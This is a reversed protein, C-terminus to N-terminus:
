LEIEFYDHVAGGGGFESKFQYLGSNLVLGNNENSTGFDFWSKNQSIASEICFEFILDLLSFRQARETSAIYQAHFTTPTVFLVVGAEVIKDILGYVTIINEPFRESLQKIEKLTHIPSVGYKRMLNKQLVGWLDSLYRKDTTISSNIIKSKKLSRKRRESLFFPKELDIISTLDSRTRKANLRFLGYIDDQSPFQHYFYPVAKYTLKIFKKSSYYKRILLLIQLMKEGQLNGHHLIGGYTIGPHSIIEQPDSPNIAAPFLGIIKNKEEIFLSYDEFKDGHYSLFNRTHLFTAQICKCCFNDWIRSESNTFKKLSIIM